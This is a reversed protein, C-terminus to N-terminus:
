AAKAAECRSKLPNGHADADHLADAPKAAPTQTPRLEAIQVTCVTIM